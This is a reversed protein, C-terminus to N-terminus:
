GAHDALEREEAPARTVVETAAQHPAPRLSRPWRRSRRAVRPSVGAVLAEEVAAVDAARVHSDGPSSVRAYRTRELEAVLRDLAAAGEPALDRGRRPRDSREADVGPAGFREGLWAGTARPSRGGPWGHGLDIALDRLEDWAEEVGGALRRERRQRRVLGPLLLALAVLLLGAFVLVIYLWPVSSGEDDAAAALDAEPSQGREPLADDSGTASPSVSPEAIAPLEGRSYSPVTDARGAPTPEFRVWGSGPFYLEPWAHYDHSSFEWTGPGASRPELFGVAVRAPIGIIRAMIAMSAAYQECYGVRGTEEDLFSDLDDDEADEAAALDYEFGGDERFWQQLARAKRFRTQAEGTVAAALTRVNSSVSGPVELYASRVDAAGSTARDMAAADLALTIGTFDYSKGATTVEDDASIFDMTSTDYRWDGTAQIDAVHATTPLWTSGWDPVVRVRYSSEERTVSSGVGELPPMEGRAVQSEPIERDGPTWTDGNFRTLVTIRFYTPRDGPTSVYFLPVDEGRLLDRRLDVMPDTVEIERTGSGPGEFLAVDLTPILVPLALAMATATTGITLASGRVAGTRVGFGAPDADEEAVERGWRTVQEEHAIFLMALFGAAVLVFILWSTGLGTVSVPVSYATLLVLGALPVRQLTCALFDVALLTLTGGVLLLAHVPPVNPPVPAEYLRASELGASFADEFAGLTAGTPLMSGTVVFLLWLASIVVQGIVLVATPVRMWRATASGFAVAIALLFLPMTVAAAESTLIRWSLLTVWTTGAALAALGIAPGLQTRHTM